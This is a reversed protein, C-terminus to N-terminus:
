RRRADMAIATERRRITERIPREVVFAGAILCAVCVAAGSTPGPRYAAVDRVDLVPRANVLECFAGGADVDRIHLIM